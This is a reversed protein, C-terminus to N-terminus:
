TESEPKEELIALIRRRQNPTLKKLEVLDEDNTSTENTIKLEQKETYGRAAGKTKLTFGIAWPKSGEVADHLKNEAVDILRESEEEWAKKIDPDKAIARDLVNRDCGLRASINSKVGYTGKIANLIKQKSLRKVPGMDDSNKNHNTKIFKYHTDDSFRIGRFFTSFLGDRVCLKAKEVRKGNERFSRTYSFLVATEPSKM